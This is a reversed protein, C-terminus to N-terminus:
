IRTLFMGVGTMAMLIGVLALLAPRWTLEPNLYLYFLRYWGCLLSLLGAETDEM